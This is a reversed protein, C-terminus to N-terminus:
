KKLGLWMLLVASVVAVIVKIVAEIVKQTFWHPAKSKGKHDERAIRPERHTEQQSEVPHPERRAFIMENYAQSRFALVDRFLKTSAKTFGTMVAATIVIGGINPAEKATIVSILDLQWFHCVYLSAGFAIFEKIRWSALKTIYYHSEFLVSFARELLISLLLVQGLVELIQVFHM